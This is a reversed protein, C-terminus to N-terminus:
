SIKSLKKPLELEVTGRKSTSFTHRKNDVYVYTRAYAVVPIDISGHKTLRVKYRLFNPGSIPEIHRWKGSVMMMNNVISFSNKQAKEPYYDTEGYVATYGFQHKYNKKDLQAPPLNQLVKTAPRLYVNRDFKAIAQNHEATSAFYGFMGVIVIIFTFIAPRATHFSEFFKTKYIQYIGYSAVVALFFDGYSLYRWPLQIIALFSDKFSDWPFISTSILILFVGIIYSFYEIKEKKIWYWGFFLTALLVLGISSSKAVNSISSQFLTFGDITNIGPYASAVDHGIFDSIFPIAIPFTMVLILGISIFFYKIRKTSFSKEIFLSVLFCVILVETTMIVSLVHSYIMLSMGISFIYWRKEDRRVLEYFGLFVIPIFTAAIFEGFVFNGLYLRYPALVYVFAFILSRIRNKSFSVMCCYSILYAFFTLLGYWIYFSSIPDFYLRLLAWPYLFVTPYFLFSGVGTKQFTSTAIFTFWEGHQINKFIEEVRSAHFLWDSLAVIRHTQISPSIMVITVGLFLVIFSVDQILELCKKKKMIDKKM